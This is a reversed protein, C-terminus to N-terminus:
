LLGSATAQASVELAGDISRRLVVKLSGSELALEDNPLLKFEEGDCRVTVAKQTVRAAGLVLERIM